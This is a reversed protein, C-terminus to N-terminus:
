YQIVCSMESLDVNDFFRDVSFFISKSNHDYEVSLVEPTAVM